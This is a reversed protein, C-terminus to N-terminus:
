DAAVGGGAGDVHDENEDSDEGSDEDGDQDGDCEDALGQDDLGWAHSRVSSAMWRLPGAARDTVVADGGADGVDDGDDDAEDEPDCSPPTTPPVTPGGTPGTTPGATPGTGHTTPHHVPHVPSPDDAPQGPGPEPAPAPPSVPLNAAPPAVVVEVRHTVCIGDQLKAPRKCPQYRVDSGAASDAAVSSAAAPDVAHGPDPAWSQYAIVGAFPTALSVLAGLVLTSRRMRWVM